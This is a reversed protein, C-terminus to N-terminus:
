KLFVKPFPSFILIAILLILPIGQMVMNAKIVPRVILAIEEVAKAWGCNTSSTTGM